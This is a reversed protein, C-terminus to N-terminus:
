EVYLIRQKGAVRKIEQLVSKEVKHEARVGLRHILDLLLEVLTDLLEQRRQWCFAALLTYKIEPPHRKIEHLNEVAVRRRYSAGVKTSVNAFLTDPLGIAEITKLKQIERLM